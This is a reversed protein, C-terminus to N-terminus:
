HTGGRLARWADRCQHQRFHPPTCCCAARSGAFRAPSRQNQASESQQPRLSIRHAFVTRVDGFDLNIFRPVRQRSATPPLCCFNTKTLWHAEGDKDPVSKWDLFDMTTAVMREFLNRLRLGADRELMPLLDADVFDLQQGEGARQWSKARFIRSPAFSIVTSAFITKSKARKSLKGTFQNNAPKSGFMGVTMARSLFYRRASTVAPQLTTLSLYGPPFRRRCLRIRTDLPRHAFGVLGQREGYRLTM